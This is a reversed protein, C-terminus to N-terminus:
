SSKLAEVGADVTDATKFFDLFGTMSMTDKLEESLGVLVLQSDKATSQRYISLLSRLGASSMYSVLTLDMLIKSGPKMLPLVQETITPATKADIEGELKAVFVHDLNQVTINM